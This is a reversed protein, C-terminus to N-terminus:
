RVARDRILKCISDWTAAAVYRGESRMTEARRKCEAVAGEGHNLIMGDAARSIKHWNIDLEVSM